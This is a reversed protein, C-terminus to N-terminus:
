NRNGLLRVCFTELCFSWGGVRCTDMLFLGCGSVCAACCLVREKEGLALARAYPSGAGLTCVRFLLLGWLVGASSGHLAICRKRAALSSGYLGYHTPCTFAVRGPLVFVEPWSSCLCTGSSLSCLFREQTAKVMLKKTVHATSLGHQINSPIYM